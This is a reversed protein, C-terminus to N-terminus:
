FNGLYKHILKLVIKTKLACYIKFKISVPMKQAFGLSYSWIKHFQEFKKLADIGKPELFNYFKLIFKM